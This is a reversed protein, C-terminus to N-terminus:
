VKTWGAFQPLTLLYDDMENEASFIRFAMWEADTADLAPGNEKCNRGDDALFKAIALATEDPDGNEDVGGNLRGIDIKDYKTGSEYAGQNAYLTVDFWLFGRKHDIQLHGPDAIAGVLSANTKKDLYTGTIM